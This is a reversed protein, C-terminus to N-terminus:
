KAKEVTTHVHVRDGLKLGATHAKPVTADFSRRYSVDMPMGKKNKAPKPQAEDELELQAMDKDDYHQRISVIKGTRTRRHSPGEERLRAIRKRLPGEIM